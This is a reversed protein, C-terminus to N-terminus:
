KKIVEKRETGFLSITMLDPLHHFYQWNRCDNNTGESSFLEKAMELHTKHAEDLDLSLVKQMIALKTVTALHSSSSSSRYTRITEQVYPSDCFQLSGYFSGRRLLLAKM